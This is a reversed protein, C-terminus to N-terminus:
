SWGLGVGAVRTGGGHWGRALGTGGGGDLQNISTDSQVVVRVKM